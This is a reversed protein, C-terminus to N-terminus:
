DIDTDIEIFTLIPLIDNKLIKMKFTLNYALLLILTFALLFIFVYM